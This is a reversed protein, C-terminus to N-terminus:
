NSSSDKPPRPNITRPRLSGAYKSRSSRVSQPGAPWVRALADDPRVDPVLQAILSTGNTGGREAIQYSLDFREMLRLFLSHLVPEYRNEELREPDNWLTELRNFKVLGHGVDRTEKDDLVFSIATALWDPKLM